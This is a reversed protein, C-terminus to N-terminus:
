RKTRLVEHQEYGRRVGCIFYDFAGNKGQAERVVLQATDLEVVYLQLWEGRPTLQVTLGETTTLGFHEPLALVAKGSQLQGTGRVYTGAEGGELAVYVIERSPDSPHAQVFAKTGTASFNGNVQVDGDFLGALGPLGGGAGPGAIGHVGIGGNSGGHNNSGGTGLVGTGGGTSGGTGEHDGIGGTGSVGTGGIAGSGDGGTGSVGTGGPVGPNTENSPATGVVGTGGSDGHVGAGSTSKGFVGNGSDSSADVGDAGNTGTAKVAPTSSVSSAFGSAGSSLTGTSLTGTVNLNKDMDVDGGVFHGALGTSTTAVLATGSGSTASVGTNSGSKASVGIGSDSSADVGDAGSSGTAKVAPTSATSSAFVGPKAAGSALATGSSLELLAGAGVSAVAVVGLGKTLMKRRSSRRPPTRTQPRARGEEEAAPPLLASGKTLEEHLRGHAQELEAERTVQADRTPEESPTNM